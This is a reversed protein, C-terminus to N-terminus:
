LANIVGATDRKIPTSSLFDKTRVSGQYFSDIAIQHANKNINERSRRVIFSFVAEIDKTLVGDVHERVEFPIKVKWTNSDLVEVSSSHFLFHPPLSLRRTVGKLEGGSRRKEYDGMVQNHFNQTFFPRLTNANEKYDVEGDKLWSQLSPFVNATFAFVTEPLKEGPRLVAGARLDPPVDVTIGEKLKFNFHVSFALLAILLINLIQQFRITQFQNQIFDKRM